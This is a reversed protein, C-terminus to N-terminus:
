DDEGRILTPEGTWTREIERMANCIASHFDRVDGHYGQGLGDNIKSALVQWQTVTMTCTMTVRVDKPNEPQAFIRM